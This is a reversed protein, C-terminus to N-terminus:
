LHTGVSLPISSFRAMLRAAGRIVINDAVLLISETQKKEAALQKMWLKRASNDFSRMDLCEWIHKIPKDSNSAASHRWQNIVRQCSPLDFHGQFIFHLVHHDREERHVM